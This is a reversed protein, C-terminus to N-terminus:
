EGLGTMNPMKGMRIYHWITLWYEHNNRYEFINELSNQFAKHAAAEKGMSSIMADAVVIMHATYENMQTVGNTTTTMLGINGYM